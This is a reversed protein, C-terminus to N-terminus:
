IIDTDETVVEPSEVKSSALQKFKENLKVEAASKAYIKELIKVTLERNYKKSFKSAHRIDDYIGKACRVFADSMDKTHTAPHDVKGKILRLHSWESLMLKSQPGLIREEYIGNKVYDYESSTRDVSMVWWRIKSRTFDQGLPKYMYTDLIVAGIEWYQSLWIIFHFVKDFSTEESKKRTLTTSIPVKINPKTIKLNDDEIFEGSYYGISLGFRDKNVGADLGIYIIRETPLSEHCAKGIYDEINDDEDFFKVSFVDPIRHPLIFANKLKEPYKVYVSTSKTTIGATDQLALEIDHLYQPYLNKPVNIVNDKDMTDDLPHNEDIIFPKNISDGGYVPFTEKSFMGLFDKFEWQAGRVIKIDFATEKIFREVIASDKGPSSDVVISGLYGNGKLFRSNWRNLAIKLRSYAKQPDVFNMESFNAYLLNSGLIKNKVRTCDPKFEVDYKVPVGSRFYPSNEMWKKIPKLFDDTARESSAHFFDLLIPKDLVYIGFFDLNRLHQLRCLNYLAMCTSFFSKGTGLSGALVIVNNSTHIEDPFIENGIELWKPYLKVSGGIYYPDTVFQEFTPPLRQYGVIKSELILQERPSLDKIEKELEQNNM